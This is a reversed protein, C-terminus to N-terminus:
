NVVEKGELHSCWWEPKVEPFTTGYEHKQIPTAQKTLASKMQVSVRTQIAVLKPEYRCQLRVGNDIPEKHCWRCDSCQGGM